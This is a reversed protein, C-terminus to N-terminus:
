LNVLQVNCGAQEFVNGPGHLHLAGVAILTRRPSQLLHEVRPLWERNRALLVAHRIGPLNFAPSQDAISYLSKIDADMWAAYMANLLRQPAALDNALSELAQCIENLPASDFNNVLSEATELFHVPKSRQKAWEIFQPEIGPVHSQAFVSSTLLVAWPRMAELVGHAGAQSWLTSLTNWTAPTLNDSLHTPNSTRVYPAITTPDSEFAVDEAWDFAEMAWTPLGSNEKPLIHMSGLFRVNTGIANWYM